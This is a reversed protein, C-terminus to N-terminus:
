PDGVMFLLNFHGKECSSAAPEPILPIVTVTVSAFCLSLFSSLGATSAKFAVCPIAPDCHDKPDRLLVQLLHLKMAERLGAMRGLLLRGPFCLFSFGALLAATLPVARVPPSLCTSGVCPVLPCANRCEWRGNGCQGSSRPKEHLLAFPM